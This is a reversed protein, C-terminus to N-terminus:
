NDDEEDERDIGGVMGGTPMTTKSITCGGDIPKIAGHKKMAEYLPNNDAVAAILEPEIRHLSWSVFQSFGKLNRWHGCRQCEDYSWEFTRGRCGKREITHVYRHGRVRCVYKRLRLILGPKM